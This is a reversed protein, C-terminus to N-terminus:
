SPHSIPYVGERATPTHAPFLSLVTMFFFAPPSDAAPGIQFLKKLRTRALVGVSNKLGGVKSFVPLATRSPPIEPVVRTISLTEPFIAVSYVGSDCFSSRKNASYWEM